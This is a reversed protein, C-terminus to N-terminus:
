DISTGIAEILVTENITVVHVLVLVLVLELGPVLGLVLGVDAAMTLPKPQRLLLKLSDMGVVAGQADAVRVALAPL